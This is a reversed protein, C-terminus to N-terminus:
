TNPTQFVALGCRLGLDSSGSLLHPQLLRWKLVWAQLSPPALGLPLLVRGKLADRDLSPLLGMTDPWLYVYM